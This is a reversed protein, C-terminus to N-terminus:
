EEWWNEEIDNIEYTKVQDLTGCFTIRREFADFTKPHAVQINEYQQNFTWNSIIYVKTYCAVKDGYRARLKIPYGELYRLMEEIPLSSRFEEFIIVNEGKYSDFPNKYNSIAYVNQYEYKEMVYRTKGIGTEGYLYIVDLVRYIKSYKEELIEQQISNINNKYRMYQSPYTERIENNPVGEKLMEYIEELDTRKGQQPLEGWTIHDGIRSDEKTCYDSAQQPTGKIIEIHATPFNNKITDFSKAHAFSIYIQHHKTGKEGQELQFATYKIGNMDTISKLLQENTMPESEKYNITLIWGRSRISM